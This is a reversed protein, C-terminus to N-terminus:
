DFGLNEGSDQKEFEVLEINPPPLPLSRPGNGHGPDAAVKALQSKSIIRHLRIRLPRSPMLGRSQVDSVIVSQLEGEGEHPHCGIFNKYTLHRRQERDAAHRKLRRAAWTQAKSLM